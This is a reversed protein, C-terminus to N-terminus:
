RHQANMEEVNIPQHRIEVEIGDLRPFQEAEDFLSVVAGVGVVVGNVRSVDRLGHM